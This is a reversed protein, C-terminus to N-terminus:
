RMYFNCNNKYIYINYKMINFEIAVKQINLINM